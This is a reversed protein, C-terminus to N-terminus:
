RDACHWAKSIAIVVLASAEINRNAPNAMLANVVV